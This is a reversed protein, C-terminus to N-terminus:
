FLFLEVVFGVQAGLLALPLKIGVADNQVGVGSGKGGNGGGSGGHEAGGEGGGHGAEGGGKSHGGGGGKKMSEGNDLEILNTAYILSLSASSTINGLTTSTFAGCAALLLCCPFIKLQM